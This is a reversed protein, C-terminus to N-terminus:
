REKLTAPFDINGLLQPIVITLFVIYTLYTDYNFKEEMKNFEYQQKVYKIM